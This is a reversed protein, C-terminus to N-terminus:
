PNYNVTKASSGKADIEGFGVLDEDDCTYDATNIRKFPGPREVCLMFDGGWDGQGPMEAYDYIMGDNPVTIKFCSNSNIQKWGEVVWNSSGPKDKYSLALYVTDSMHNCFSLQVYGPMADQAVAPPAGGALLLAAVLGVSQIKSIVAIAGSSCDRPPDDRRAAPDQM